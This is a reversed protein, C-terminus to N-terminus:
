ISGDWAHCFLVDWYTFSELIWAAEAPGCWVGSLHVFWGFTWLVLRASLGPGVTVDPYPCTGFLFCFTQPLAATRGSLLIWALGSAHWFVSGNRGLKESRKHPCTLTLHRICDPIDALLPPPCGPRRSLNFFQLNVSQFSLLTQHDYVPHLAMLVVFCSSLPRLCLSWSICGTTCAPMM